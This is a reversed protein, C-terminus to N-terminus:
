PGQHDPDGPDRAVVHGPSQHLGSPLHVAQRAAAPGRDRPHPRDPGVHQVRRAGRPDQLPQAGSVQEEAGPLSLRGLRLVDLDVAGHELVHQIRQHGAAAEPVGGQHGPELVVEARELRVRARRHLRREALLLLPQRTLVEVVGLLVQEEVRGLAAAEAPRHVARVGHDAPRQAVQHVHTDGQRDVARQAALGPRREDEGAGRLLVVADRVQGVGSQQGLM